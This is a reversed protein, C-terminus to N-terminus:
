VGLEPSLNICYVFPVASAMIHRANHNLTQPGRKYTLAGLKSADVGCQVSEMFTSLDVNSHVLKFGDPLFVACERDHTGSPTLDLGREYFRLVGVAENLVMGDPTVNRHRVKSQFFWSGAHVSPTCRTLVIPCTNIHEGCM